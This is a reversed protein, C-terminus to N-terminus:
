SRWIDDNEKIWYMVAFPWIAWGVVLALTFVSLMKQFESDFAFRCDKLAMFTVFGSLLAYHVLTM